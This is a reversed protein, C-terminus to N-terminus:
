SHFIVKDIIENKKTKKEKSGLTSEFYKFCSSNDAERVMIPNTPAILKTIKGVVFLNQMRTSNTATTLTVTAITVEVGVEPGVVAVVRTVAVAVIPLM